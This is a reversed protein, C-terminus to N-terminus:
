TCRGDGFIKAILSQINQQDHVRDRPQGHRLAFDPEGGALRGALLAVRRGHEAQKGFDELAGSVKLAAGDGAEIGHQHFAVIKVFWNRSATREIRSPCM